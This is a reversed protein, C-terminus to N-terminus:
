KSKMLKEFFKDIEKGKLGKIKGREIADIEPLFRLMLLNYYMKKAVEDAIKDSINKILEKNITIDQNVQYSQFGM